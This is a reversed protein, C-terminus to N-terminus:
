CGGFSRPQSLRFGALSALKWKALLSSRHRPNGKGNQHASGLDSPKKQAQIITDRVERDSVGAVDPLVKDESTSM